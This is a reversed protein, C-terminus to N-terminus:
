LGADWYFEVVITHRILSGPIWVDKDANRLERVMAGIELANNMDVPSVFVIKRIRYLGTGHIPPLVYNAISREAQRVGNPHVYVRTFPPYTWLWTWNEGLQKDLRRNELYQLHKLENAMSRWNYGDFYELEICYGDHYYFWEAQYTPNTLRLFSIRLDSHNAVSFQVKERSFSSIELSVYGDLPPFVRIQDALPSQSKSVFNVSHSTDQNNTSTSQRIAKIVYNHFIASVTIIVITTVICILITKKM